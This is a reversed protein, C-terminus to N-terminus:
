LGPRRRKPWRRSGQEHDNMGKPKLARARAEAPADDIERRATELAIGRSSYGDWTASVLIPRDPTLPSAVFSWNLGHSLYIAYGRYIARCDGM